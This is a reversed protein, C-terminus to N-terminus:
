TECTMKAMHLPKSTLGQYAIAYKLRASLPVRDRHLHLNPMMLM